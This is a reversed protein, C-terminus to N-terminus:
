KLLLQIIVKTDDMTMRLRYGSLIHPHKNVDELGIEVAPLQGLGGPWSGRLPFLGLLWIEKEDESNEGSYNSKSSTRSSIVSSSSTPSSSSSSSSSLTTPTQTFDSTQLPVPSPSPTTESVQQFFFAVLFFTDSTLGVTTWKKYDM